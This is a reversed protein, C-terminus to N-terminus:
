GKMKRRPKDAKYKEAYEKTERRWMNNEGEHMKHRGEASDAGKTEVRLSKIKRRFEQPEEGYDKIKRKM